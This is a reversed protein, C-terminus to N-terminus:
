LFLKKIARTGFYSGIVMGAVFVIGQISLLPVAGVIFKLNCGGAIRAGYALLMGGLFASIAHKKPPM